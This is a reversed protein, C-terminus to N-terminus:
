ILKSKRARFDTMFGNRNSKIPHFEPFRNNVLKLGGQNVVLQAGRVWCMARLSYGAAARCVQDLMFDSVSM